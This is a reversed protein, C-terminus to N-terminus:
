LPLTEERVPELRKLGKQTLVLRVRQYRVDCRSTFKVVLNIHYVRAAALLDSKEGRLVFVDSRPEDMKLLFHRLDFRAIDTLATKRAGKQVEQSHLVIKKVYRLVKESRWSNEIETVHDRTRLRMVVPDVRSEPIFHVLERCVGIREKTFPDLIDNSLDMLRDARQRQVWSQAMAKFRDKFMYSVVVATFFYLSLTGYTKQYYFAVTTALLMAFGAGLALGLQELGRGEKITRVSLHLASSVFKKLVSLRYVFTENDHGEEVVSPYRRACRYSIEERILALLAAKEGALVSEPTKQLEQLLHHARGEILLSVYEDTFVYTFDLPSLLASQEFAERFARFGNKLRDLGSLTEQVLRSAEEFRNQTHVGAMVRRLSRVKEWLATKVVCGLLRIEYALVTANYPTPSIQYSGWKEHMRQLPSKANSLDTLAELSMEPAKFRIYLLMDRYFQSKSYTAENVDLNEPLFFFYEVKYRDKRGGLSLDYDLKLEIHYDDHRRVLDGLDSV